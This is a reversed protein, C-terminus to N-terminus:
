FTATSGLSRVFFLIRFVGVDVDDVDGVVVPVAIVAVAIINWCVACCRCCRGCVSCGFGRRLRPCRYVVILVM